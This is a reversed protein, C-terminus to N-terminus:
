LRLSLDIEVALKKRDDGLGDTKESMALALERRRMTLSRERKHANQHGGLAQSSHFKRPCYSCSFMMVPEPLSWPQLGLELNLDDDAKKLGLEM